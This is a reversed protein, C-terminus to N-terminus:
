ARYQHVFSPSRRAVTDQFGPGDLEAAALDIADDTIDRRRARRDLDVARDPKRVAKHERHGRVSADPLAMDDPPFVSADADRKVGLVAQPV